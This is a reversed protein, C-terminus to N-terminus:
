PRWQARRMSGQCLRAVLQGIGGEANSVQWQEGSPFVAVDLTAQSVDIGISCQAEGTM